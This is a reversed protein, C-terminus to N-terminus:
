GEDKSLPQFKESHLDTEERIFIGKRSQLCSQFDKVERFFINRQYEKRRLMRIEIMRTSRDVFLNFTRERDTKDLLKHVARQASVEGMENKDFPDSGIM